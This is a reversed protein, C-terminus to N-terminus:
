FGVTQSLTTFERHLFAFQSSLALAFRVNLHLSKKDQITTSM